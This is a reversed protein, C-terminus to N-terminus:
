PSRNSNKSHAQNWYPDRSTDSMQSNPLDEAETRNGSDGFREDQPISPHVGCGLLRPPLPNRNGWSLRRIEEWDGAILAQKKKRNWGKIQREVSLAEYRDSFEQTWVLQVPRRTATFGGLAGEVHQGFRKELDDTHGIYFAGDACRLM